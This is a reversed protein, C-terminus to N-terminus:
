LGGFFGGLASGAAGGAPGGVATGLLGGLTGFLGGTKSKKAAKAQAKAQETLFQYLNGQDYNHGVRDAIAGTAQQDVGAKKTAIDEYIAGRARASSENQRNALQDYVTTSYIGREMASQQLGGRASAAGRAQDALATQGYGELMKRQYDRSRYLVALSPDITPAAAPNGTTPTVGGGGNALPSYPSGPAAMGGNPRLWQPLDGYKRREGGPTTAWSNQDYYTSPM